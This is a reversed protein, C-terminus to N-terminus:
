PFRLVYTITNELNPVGNKELKEIRIIRYYGGEITRGRIRSPRGHGPYQERSGRSSLLTTLIRIVRNRQSPTTRYNRRKMKVRSKVSPARLLASADHMFNGTESLRRRHASLRLERASM